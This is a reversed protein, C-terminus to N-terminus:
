DQVHDGGDIMAMANGAIVLLALVIPIVIPWETRIVDLM